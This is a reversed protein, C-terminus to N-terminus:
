KVVGGRRALHIHTETIEIAGALLPRDLRHALRPALDRGDPCAPLILQAEDALTAVLAESWAAPAFDGAEVLWIETALGALSEAAAVPDDGILLVRGGAEGVAEAGGAPLTGARIPVVALM